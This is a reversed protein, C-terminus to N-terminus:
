CVNCIDGSDCIQCNTICTSCTLQGVGENNIMYFGENCAICKTNEAGSCGDCGPDCESCKEIDVYQNNTCLVCKTASYLAYGSECVTCMGEISCKDCNQVQASCKTCIGDLLFQTEACGPCTAGDPQLGNSCM